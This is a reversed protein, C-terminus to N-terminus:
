ELLEKTRFVAETLVPRDYIIRRVNTVPPFPLNSSLIEYGELTCVSFMVYGLEKVVNPYRKGGPKKDSNQVACDLLVELMNSINKPKQQLNSFIMSKVLQKKLSENQKILIELENLIPM